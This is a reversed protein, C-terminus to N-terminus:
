PSSPTAGPALDDPELCIRRVYRRLSSARAEDYYRQANARADALGATGAQEICDAIREYGEVLRQPDEPDESEYRELLARMAVADRLDLADNLQAVLARRGRLREHEPTLPHSPGLVDVDTSPPSVPVTTVRQRPVSVTVPGRPASPARLETAPAPREVRASPAPLMM